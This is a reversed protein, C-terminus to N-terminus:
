WFDAPEVVFYVKIIKSSYRTVLPCCLHGDLFSWFSNNAGYLEYLSCTFR